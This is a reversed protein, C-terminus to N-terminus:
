FPLFATGGGDVTISSGTVYRCEDSALYLAAAAVDAPTGYAGMPIVRQRHSQIEPDDARQATREVRIPGPAIMNVAIGHPALDVAMARTLLWLGGKSAAYPAANPESAFSDVSGMNIIRGQIRTQVMNRAIAQSIVFAGTLNTNLYSQWDAISVDLFPGIRGTRGANNVLIDISGYTELVHNVIQTASEPSSIDGAVASADGGKSAIESVTADLLGEDRQTLVVQAGEAAFRHAIGKGIGRGGGTILARKGDIRGM